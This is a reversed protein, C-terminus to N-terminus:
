RAGERMVEKGDKKGNQCEGGEKEDRKWEEDKQDEAGENSDRERASEM